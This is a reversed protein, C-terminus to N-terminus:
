RLGYGKRQIRKKIRDKMRKVERAQEEPPLYEIEMIKAFSSTRREGELMLKFVAFEIPTTMDQSLDEILRQGDIKSAVRESIDNGDSQNFEVDKLTSRGKVHRSEKRLLNQMDRYAARKLYTMLNSKDPKYKDPSKFYDTLADFVASKYIDPDIGVALSQFKIRLHREIEPVFIRFMEETVVPDDRLLRNHLELLEAKRDPIDDERM